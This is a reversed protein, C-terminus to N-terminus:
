KEILEFLEEVKIKFFRALRIALITSPVFRGNEITNITKRTVGVETALEEQTMNKIARQVKIKNRLEWNEM